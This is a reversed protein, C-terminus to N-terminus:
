NQTPPPKPTPTPAPAPAPTPNPTSTSTLAPSGVPRFTLPAQPQSGDVNTISYDFANGQPDGNAGSNAVYKVTFSKKGDAFADVQIGAIGTGGGNLTLKSSCYASYSLQPQGKPPNGEFWHPKGDVLWQTGDTVDEFQLHALNDYDTVIRMQVGTASVYDGNWRPCAGTEHQDSANKLTHDIPGVPAPAPDAKKYGHCGAVSIAVVGMMLSHKISRM